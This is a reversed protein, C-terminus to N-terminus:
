SMFDMLDLGKKATQTKSQSLLAALGGKRAKARQKSSANTSKIVKNKDGQSPDVTATSAKDSNSIRAPKRTHKAPKSPLPQVTKRDCRLCSYVLDKEKREKKSVDEKPGKVTKRARSVCRVDCSWGPLMLNGCAGCVERRLADWEKSTATLDLDQSELLKERAAGLTASTAPARFALLHAAEKLFRLRSDNNAM